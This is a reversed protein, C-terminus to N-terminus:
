EDSLDLELNAPLQEVVQPKLVIGTPLFSLIDSKRSVNTGSGARMALWRYAAISNVLRFKTSSSIGNFLDTQPCTIYAYAVGEELASKIQENGLVDDMVSFQVGVDMISGNHLKDFLYDSIAELLKYLLFGDRYVSQSRMFRQAAFSMVADHQSNPKLLQTRSAEFIKDCIQIFRRVNGDSVRRIMVDGSLWPVKSNGECSKKYLERLLYIPKYRKIQGQVFKNTKKQSASKLEEVVEKEIEEDSVNNFVSRYISILNKPSSVGVFHELCNPDPLEDFLGTEALRTGVLYDTLANFDNEDWEYDISEFRFDDGEPQVYEGDIETQFETYRFPLTAIKLSLGRSESRMITNIVRQLNENLYEAEDFCAIWATKNKDFGLVNNIIPLISIIPELLGIDFANVGRQFDWDRRVRDFLRDIKEQLSKLSSIPEDEAILWAEKLKNIIKREKLLAEVEDEFYNHILANVEDLISGAAACNFLFSFRRREEKANNTKGIEELIRLRLPIYFGIYNVGDSSLKRKLDAGFPGSAINLISTYTMMRLLITKGSGRTGILIENGVNFRNWFKSTPVFHSNLKYSPFDRAQSATFPNQGTYKRVKHALPEKNTM